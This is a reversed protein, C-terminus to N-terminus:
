STTPHRPTLKLSAYPVARRHRSGDCSLYARNRVNDMEQRILQATRHIYISWEIVLSELNSEPSLAVTVVSLHELQTIASIGHVNRSDAFTRGQSIIHM